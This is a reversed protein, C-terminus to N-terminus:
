KGRLDIVSRVEAHFIEKAKQVMPHALAAEHVSGSIPAAVPSSITAAGEGPLVMFRTSAGLRQLETRIIKEGAANVTLSLMKKGIGPVEIRLSSGDLTWAASGLLTSASAHGASALAGVIAQRVNEVSPAEQTEVVQPAKALAGETLTEAFSNTQSAAPPFPSVERRPVLVSEAAQALVPHTPTRSEVTPGTQKMITAAM